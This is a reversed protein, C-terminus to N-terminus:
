PDVIHVEGQHLESRFTKKFRKKLTLEFRTCQEIVFM